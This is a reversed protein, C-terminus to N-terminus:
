FYECILFLDLLVFMWSIFNKKWQHNTTPPPPPSTHWTYNSKCWTDHSVVGCTSKYDHSIGDCSKSHFLLKLSSPVKSHLLIHEKNPHCVKGVSKIASLSCVRSPIVEHGKCSLYQYLLGPRTDAWVESVHEEISTNEVIGM